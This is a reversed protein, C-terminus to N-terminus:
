HTPRILGHPDEEVSPYPLTLAACMKGNSVMATRAEPFLRRSEQVQPSKYFAVLWERTTVDEGEFHWYLAEVGREGFLGLLGPAEVPGGGSLAPPRAIDSQHGVLWARRERIWNVQVGLWVGFITVLVFLTRLSFRFWRRRPKVITVTMM